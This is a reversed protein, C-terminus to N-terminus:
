NSGPAFRQNKYFFTDVFRGTTPDYPATEMWTAPAPLYCANPPQLYGEAPHVPDMGNSVGLAQRTADYPNSVAQGAQSTWWLAQGPVGPGRHVDHSGYMPAPREDLADRRYEMKSSNGVPWYYREPRYLIRERLLYAENNAYDSM